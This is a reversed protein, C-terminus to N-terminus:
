FSASVSLSLYDHDRLTDYAASDAYTVYNLDLALRKQLDFRAGLGIQKRGKLLQGDVSYGSVDHAFFLSPLFAVGTGVFRPYELQARLKYGAAFRTAYGDNRCGDPH